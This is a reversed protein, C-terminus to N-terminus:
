RRADTGEEETTIFKSFGRVNPTNWLIETLLLAPTQGVSDRRQDFSTITRLAGGSEQTQGWKLIRPENTPPSRTERGRYAFLASPRQVRCTVRMNNVM